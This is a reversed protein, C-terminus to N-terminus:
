KKGQKEDLLKKMVKEEIMSMKIASLYGKEKYNKLAEKPDQGTQMAEYFIVQSVEEDSVNIDESKALADVIFTAKVSNIAEPNLEKRLKEIESPNQKFKDLEDKSYSSAKKNLIINIEQEVISQPVAFDLKKVLTDLYLPKLEKSYYENLKQLKIDEKIKDKLTDLSADKDQTLITKAFDDDLVVKSKKQIDNLKVKFIVDKSALEKSNYNAPFTVKIDKQEGKKMGIVQDEFGTIFSGSGIELSHNNAKGGDFSVNNLFGEFDILVYDKNKVERKTKITELPANQLAMADLRDNIDKASVKKSNVKPLLEKYNGLSVNPKLYIKLEIDIIGDDKEDFKSVSPEGALNNNSVKLEKLCKDFVDRLCDNKADELLKKSHMKKVVSVPVKGKRFGSIDMSKSAQLSIKDFAKDINDKSITSTVVINASDIKNINLKM